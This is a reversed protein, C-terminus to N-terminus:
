KLEKTFIYYDLGFWYNNLSATKKFGAKNFFAISEKNNKRIDCGIM